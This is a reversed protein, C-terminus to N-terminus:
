YGGHSAIGLVIWCVVAITILIIGMFTILLDKSLQTFWQSGM